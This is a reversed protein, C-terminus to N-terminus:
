GIVNIKGGYKDLLSNKKKLEKEQKIKDLEKQQIDLIALKSLAEEKEKLIEEMQIETDSGNIKLYERWLKNTIESANFTPDELRKGSIASDIELDFNIMRSIKSRGRPRAM